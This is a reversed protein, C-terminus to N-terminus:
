SKEREAMEGIAELGTESSRSFPKHQILRAGMGPGPGVGMVLCGVSRVKWM